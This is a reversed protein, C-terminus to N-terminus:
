CVPMEFSLKQILPCRAGTEGHVIDPPAVSPVRLTVTTAGGM